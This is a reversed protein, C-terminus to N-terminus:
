YYYEVSRFFYNETFLMIHLMRGNICVFYAADYFYEIM